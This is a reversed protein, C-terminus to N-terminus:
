RFLSHSPLTVCRILRNGDDSVYLCREHEAHEVLVFDYPCSFRAKAGSRDTNGMRSLGVPLVGAGAMLQRQATRPDLLYVSHTMLCSVLLRAGGGGGGGSSSRGKGSGGGSKSSTSTSRPPLSEIAWPDFTRHIEKSNALRQWVITMKPTEKGTGTSRGSSGSSSLDLQGIGCEFSM